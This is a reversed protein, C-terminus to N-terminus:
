RSAFWVVAGVISSAGATITGIMIAAVWKITERANRHVCDEIKREVRDLDSKTVLNLM